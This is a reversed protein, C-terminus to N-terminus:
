KCHISINTTNSVSRGLSNLAECKYLGSNTRDKIIRKEKTQYRRDNHHIFYEDCEPNCDAYCTIKISGNGEQMDGNDSSYFISVICPADSFLNTSKIAHTSNYYKTASFTKQEIGKYITKRALQKHTM